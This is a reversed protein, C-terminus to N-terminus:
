LIYLYVNDCNLDFIYSFLNYNVSVSIYFKCFFLVSVSYSILFLYIRRILINFFIMRIHKSREKNRGWGSTLRDSDFCLFTADDNRSM